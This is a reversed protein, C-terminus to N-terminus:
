IFMKEWGDLRMWRYGGSKHREGRVVAAVAGEYFGYRTVETICDYKRVFKYDMTLQVIPIRRQKGYDVIGKTSRELHTGWNNNEKMTVWELNEACNNKKNEDLHNVYLKNEPDPNDVFLLAVLQHVRPMRREKGKRLYLRLYGGEDEYVRLLHAKRHQPRGNSRIILREIARCRGKNSIEYCDSFDVGKYEGVSKWIEGDITEYDTIM